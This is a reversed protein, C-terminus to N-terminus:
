SDRHQTYQYVQRDEVNKNQWRRLNRSQRKMMILNLTMSMQSLTLPVKMLSIAKRNNRQRLSNISSTWSPRLSYTCYSRWRKHSNYIRQHHEKTALRVSHLSCDSTIMTYINCTKDRWWPMLHSLSWVRWSLMTIRRPERNQQDWNETM